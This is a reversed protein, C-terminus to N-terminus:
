STHGAHSTSGILRAHDSVLRFSLTIIKREQRNNSFLFVQLSIICWSVRYPKICQTKKIISLIVSPVENSM